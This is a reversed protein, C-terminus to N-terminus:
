PRHFWKLYQIIEGRKEISYLLTFSKKKYFRGCNLFIDGNKGM